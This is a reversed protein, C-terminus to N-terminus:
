ELAALAEKLKTVIARAKELNREAGGLEYRLREVERQHTVAETQAASLETKLRQREARKRALEEERRQREAEAQKRALEAQERRKAEAADRERKTPAGPQKEDPKPAPVLIPTGVAFAEFGPPDRDAVLAGPPDPDFGGTAALASLTTTVRRLTSEPAGHGGSALRAAALTRLATLARQHEAGADREGRKL